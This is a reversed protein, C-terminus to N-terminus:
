YSESASRQTPALDVALTPSWLPLSPLKLFLFVELSPMHLRQSGLSRIPPCIILSIYVLLRRSLDTDSTISALSCGVGNVGWTNATIFLMCLVCVWGYGGDIEAENSKAASLGDEIKSSNQVQSSIAHNETTDSVTLSQHPGQRHM